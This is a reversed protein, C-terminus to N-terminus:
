LELWSTKNNASQEADKVGIVITEKHQGVYDLRSLSVLLEELMRLVNQVLKISNFIRNQQFENMVLESLIQEFSSPQIGNWEHFYKMIEERETKKFFTLSTSVAGALNAVLEVMEYPSLSMGFNHWKFFLSSLSRQLDKCVELINIMITTRNNNEAQIYAKEMITSVSNKINAISKSFEKMYATLEPTSNMTLAPPIFSPDLRYSNDNKFMVGVVVDYPGYHNVYSKERAVASLKYSPEVFPYRPPNEKMDPEGCPNRDFPSVSLVIDWGQESIQGDTACACSVADTSSEFDVLYGGQTIGHYASLVVKAYENTGVISLSMSPDDTSEMPLLGYNFRNQFIKSTQVLRELLFNETAIFHSSSVSMGQKWNIQKFETNSM